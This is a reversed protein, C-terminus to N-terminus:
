FSYLDASLSPITIFIGVSGCPVDCKHHPCSWPCQMVCPNCPTSCGLICKTHTCSQLCPGMCNATGCKEKHDTTCIQQCTHQCHMIRGCQHSKHEDREKPSPSVAQCDHCPSQCTKQCCPLTKGCVAACLYDEPDQWCYLTHRHECNPLQKEVREM